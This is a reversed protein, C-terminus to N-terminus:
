QTKMFEDLDVQKVRLQIGVKFAKLKGQRVLNRVTQPSVRLIKAVEEITYTMTSGRVTKATEIFITKKAKNTLLYRYKHLKIESLVNSM